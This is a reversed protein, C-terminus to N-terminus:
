HNLYVKNDLVIFYYTFTPHPIQKLIDIEEFVRAAVDETTVIIEVFAM